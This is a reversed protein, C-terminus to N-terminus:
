QYRKGKFDIFGGAHKPTDSHHTWHMLGGKKNWVYEGSIVIWDGVQVPVRPASRTNHAVLVTTGNSLILLFKQHPLGQTDDSLLKYVQASFCVQVKSLGMAQAKLVQEQGISQIQTQATDQGAPDSVPLNSQATSNSCASCFLLPLLALQVFRYQAKAFKMKITYGFIDKLSRM